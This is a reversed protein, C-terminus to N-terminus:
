LSVEQATDSLKERLMKKARFVHSKVTNVPIDMISSIEAYSLDYFFYMDICVGYREPLESLAARVAENLVRRLQKQEPGEDTDPIETEESLSMYERRRKVSNVALNYAVRMLWTSFKAEGRFTKLNTYTKFFVDQVFDDADTSNRFFSM